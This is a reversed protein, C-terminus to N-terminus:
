SLSYEPVTVKIEPSVAVYKIIEKVPPQDEQLIEVWAKIYVILSEKSDRANPAKPLNRDYIKFTEWGLKNLIIPNRLDELEMLENHTFGTDKLEQFVKPLPLNTTMCYAYGSFSCLSHNISPSQHFGACGPETGNMITRAVVGCNCNNYDTWKYPFVDNELNYITKKLAEIKTM